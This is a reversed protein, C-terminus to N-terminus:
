GSVPIEVAPEDGLRGVRWCARGEPLSAYELSFGLNANSVGTHMTTPAGRLFDIILSRLQRAAIAGSGHEAYRNAAQALNITAIEGAAEFAPVGFGSLYIGGRGTLFQGEAGGIISLTETAGGEFPGVGAGRAFCMPVHLPWKLIGAAWLDMLQRRAAGALWLPFRQGPANPITVMWMPDLPEDEPVAGSAAFEELAENAFYLETLWALVDMGRARLDLHEARVRALPMGLSECIYNKKRDNSRAAADRDHHPGDFEVAFLARHKESSVVFDFHAKLSYSFHGNDLGSRNVDIADAVRVKTFVQAANREAAPGLLQRVRDESYNLLKKRREM